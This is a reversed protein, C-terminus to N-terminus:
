EADVGFMTDRLLLGTAAYYVDWLGFPEFQWRAWGAHAAAQALEPTPGHGVIFFHSGWPQEARYTSEAPYRRWAWDVTDTPSGPRIKPDDTYAFAEFHKFLQPPDPDSHKEEIYASCDDGDELRLIALYAEAAERTTFTDIWSDTYGNGHLHYLIM